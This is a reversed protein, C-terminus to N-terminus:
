FIYYNAEQPSEEKVPEIITAWVKYTGQYICGAEGRDYINGHAWYLDGTKIIFGNSRSSSGSHKTGVPYRVKAEILLEKQEETLEGM